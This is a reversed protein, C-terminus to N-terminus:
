VLIEIKQEILSWWENYGKENDARDLNTYCDRIYANVYFYTADACTKTVGHYNILWDFYLREISYIYTAPNCKKNFNEPM